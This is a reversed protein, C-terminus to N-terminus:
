MTIVLHGGQVLFVAQNLWNKGLPIVTKGEGDCETGSTVTM